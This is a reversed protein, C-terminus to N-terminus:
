KVSDCSVDDYWGWTRERVSDPTSAPQAFAERRRTRVQQEHGFNAEKQTAASFFRVGRM